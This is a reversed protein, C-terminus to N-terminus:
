VQIWLGHSVLNWITGVSLMALQCHICILDLYTLVNWAVTAFTCHILFCRLIREISRVSYVLPESVQSFIGLAGMAIIDINRPMILYLPISYSCDSLWVWLRINLNKLIHKKKLVAYYYLQLAWFMQRSFVFLLALMAGRFANKDFWLRLFFVM